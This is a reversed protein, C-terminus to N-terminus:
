EQAVSPITQQNSTKANRSRFHEMTEVTDMSEKIKGFIVYSVMWGSLSMLHFGPFWQSGNTNPRASAMSLIGPGVHKLIFNKGDFKEGCIKSGTGSHCTYNGSEPIIRHFYSGKYCFGEDISLFNEAIKSVKDAFMEYFVHGLYKSYIAPPIQLAVTNKCS